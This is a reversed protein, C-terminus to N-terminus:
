VTRKIGTFISKWIVNIFYKFLDRTYHVDVLMGPENDDAPNSKNIILSSFFRPVGKENFKKGDKPNVVRKFIPIAMFEM